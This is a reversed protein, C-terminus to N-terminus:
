PNWYGRSIYDRLEQPEGALLLNFDYPERGQRKWFVDVVQPPDGAVRVEGWPEMQPQQSHHNFEDWVFDMIVEYYETGDVKVMTVSECYITGEDFGLFQTTGDKWFMKGVYQYLGVSITANPDNPDPIDRKWQDEMPAAYADRLIRLRVKVQSVTADIGDTTGTDAYIGGIDIISDDLLGNQDASPPPTWNTSDGKYRWIRTARLGTSYEISAPLINIIPNPSPVPQTPDHWVITSPVTAAFTNWVCTVRVRGIKDITEFNVSRCTALPQWTGWESSSDFLVFPDGPVPIQLEDVLLNYDSSTYYVKDGDNRAIIYVQTIESPTGGLDGCTMSSSVLWREFTTTKFSNLLPPFAPISTM